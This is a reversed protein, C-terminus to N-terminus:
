AEYKYHVATMKTHLPNTPTELSHLPKMRMLMGINVLLTEGYITNAFTFCFFRYYKINLLMVNEGVTKLCAVLLFCLIAFHFTFLLLSLTMIFYASHGHQFHQCSCLQVKERAASWKHNLAAWFGRGCPAPIMKLGRSTNREEVNQWNDNQDSTSCIGYELTEM